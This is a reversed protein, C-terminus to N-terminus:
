ILDLSNEVLTVSIPEDDSKISWQFYLAIGGSDRLAMKMGRPAWGPM